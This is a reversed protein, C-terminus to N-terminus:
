EVVQMVEQVVKQVVVVDEVQVVEEGVSKM